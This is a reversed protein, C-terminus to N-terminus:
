CCRRHIPLAGHSLRPRQGALQHIQRAHQEIHKNHWSRKDRVTSYATYNQTGPVNGYESNIKLSYGLSWLRGATGSVGSGVVFDNIESNLEKVGFPNAIATESNVGYSIDSYATQVLKFAGDAYFMMNKFIVPLMQVNANLADAYEAIAVPYNPGSGSAGLDASGVLQQNVFFKWINGVSLM